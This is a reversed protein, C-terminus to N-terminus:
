KEEQFDRRRGPPTNLLKIVQQLRTDLDGLRQMTAADREALAATTAADRAALAASTAADRAALAATLEAVDQQLAANDAALSEVKADVTAVSGRVATFNQTLQADSQLAVDRELTLSCYLAAYYAVAGAVRVPTGITDKPISADWALDAIFQPGLRWNYLANLNTGIINSDFLIQNCNPLQFANVLDGPQTGDGPRVCRNDLFNEALGAACSPFFEFITCPRQGEHGCSAPRGDSSITGTSRALCKDQLFDEYLSTDCSPVIFEYIRCPRQNQGGCHAFRSGALASTPTFLVSLAIGCVVLAMYACARTRM